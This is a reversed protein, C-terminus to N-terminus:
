KLLEPRKLTVSGHGPSSITVSEIGSEASPMLADLFTLQPAKRVSEAFRALDPKWLGWREVIMGFEEIDHPVIVPKEEDKVKEMFCHQLEHDVLAALQLPSLEKWITWNFEVLFDINGYHRLKANARSAKGLIIKSAREMSEVWLYGIRCTQLHPHHSPILAEAIARPQIAERVTEGQPWQLFDVGMAVAIDLASGQKGISAPWQPATEGMTGQAAKTRTM